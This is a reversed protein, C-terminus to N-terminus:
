FYIAFLNKKILVSEILGCSENVLDNEYGKKGTERFIDGFGFTHQGRSGRTSGDQLDNQKVGPFIHSTISFSKAVNKTANVFIKM